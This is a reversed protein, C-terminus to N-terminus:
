QDDSPSTNAIAPTAHKDMPSSLARSPPSELQSRMQHHLNPSRAASDRQVVIAQRPWISHTMTGARCFVEIIRGILHVFDDYCWVSESSSISRFLCKLRPVPACHFRTRVSM